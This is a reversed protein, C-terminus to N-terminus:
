LRGQLSNAITEVSCPATLSPVELVQGQCQSSCQCIKDAIEFAVSRVCTYPRAVTVLAGPTLSATVQPQLVSHGLFTLGKINSLLKPLHSGIKLIRDGISEYSFDRHLGMCWL